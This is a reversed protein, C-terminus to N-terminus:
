EEGDEDENICGCDLNEDYPGCNQCFSNM